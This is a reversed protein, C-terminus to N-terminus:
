FDKSLISIKSHHEGEVNTIYKAYTKMSMMEGHTDSFRWYVDGFRKLLNEFSNQPFKLSLVLHHVCLIPIIQECYM